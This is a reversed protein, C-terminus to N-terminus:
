SEQNFRASQESIDNQSTQQSDQEMQLYSNTLSAKRGVVEEEEIKESLYNNQLARLYSEQAKM